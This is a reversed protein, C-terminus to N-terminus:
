CAFVWLGWLSFGKYIGRERMVCDVCYFYCGYRGCVKLVVGLSSYEVTEVVVAFWVKRRFFFVARRFKGGV